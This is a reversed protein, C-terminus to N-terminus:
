GFEVHMEEEDAIIRRKRETYIFSRDDVQVTWCALVRYVSRSKTVMTTLVKLPRVLCKAM